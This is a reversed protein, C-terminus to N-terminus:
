STKWDAFQHISKSLAKEKQSGSECENKIININKYIFKKEEMKLCYEVGEEIFSKKFKSTFVPKKIYGM